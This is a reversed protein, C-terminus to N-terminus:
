GDEGLAERMRQQATAVDDDTVTRDGCDEIEGPGPDRGCVSYVLHAPGPKANVDGYQNMALAIACGKGVMGPRQALLECGDIDGTTMYNYSDSGFAPGTELAAFAADGLPDLNYVAPGNDRETRYVTVGDIIVEENVVSAGQTEAGASSLVILAGAAGVVAVAAIIVGARKLHLVGRM